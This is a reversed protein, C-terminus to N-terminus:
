SEGDGGVIELGAGESTQIGAADPQLEVQNSARLRRLVLRTRVGFGRRRRNDATRAGAKLAIARFDRRNIWGTSPIAEDFGGRVAANGPPM